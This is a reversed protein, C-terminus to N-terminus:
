GRFIRWPAPTGISTPVTKLSRTKPAVFFRRVHAFVNMKGEHYLHANVRGLVADLGHSKNQSDLILSQLVSDETLDQLVVHMNPTFLKQLDGIPDLPWFGTSVPIIAIKGEFYAQTMATRNEFVEPETRPIKLAKMAEELGEQFLIQSFSPVRGWKFRMKSLDGACEKETEANAQTELWEQTRYGPILKSFLSASASAIQVKRDNLSKRFYRAFQRRCERRDFPAVRPNLLFANIRLSPLFKVEHELSIKKLDEEAYMSETAAIVSNGVLERSLSDVDKKKPYVFYIKDPAGVFLNDNLDRRKKFMWLEPSRSSLVYPGSSPIEQAKLKASVKDVLRSPIISFLELVFRYLPHEIHQDLQIKLENGQISLGPLAWTLPSPGRAWKSIGVINRIVPFSPRKAAMRLVAMQLDQITLPTGDSFHLESKLVFTITKTKQEYGFSELVQSTLQDSQSVELPTAYVMRAVPLNESNDADLPDLSLSPGTETIIYRAATESLGSTIANLSNCHLYAVLVVFFVLLRRAAKASRLSNPHYSVKLALIRSDV